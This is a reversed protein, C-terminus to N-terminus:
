RDQLTPGETKTLHSHNGEKKSISIGYINRRTRKEQKKISQFTIETCIYM